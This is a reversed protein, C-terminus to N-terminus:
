DSSVTHGLFMLFIVCVENTWGNGVCIVANIYLFPYLSQHTSVTPSEERYMNVLLNDVKLKVKFQTTM